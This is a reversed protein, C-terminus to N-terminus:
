SHDTANHWGFKGGSTQRYIEEGKKKCVLPGAPTSCTSVCHLVVGRDLYPPNSVSATITCDQTTHTHTSTITLFLFKMMQHAEARQPIRVFQQHPRNIIMEQLLSRQLHQYQSNKM